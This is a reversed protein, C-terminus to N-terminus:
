FPPPATPQYAVPTNISRSRRKNIICKLIYYIISFLIIILTTIEITELISHSNQFTFHITSNSIHYKQNDAEDAQAISIVFTIFRFLNCIYTVLFKPNHFNIYKLSM